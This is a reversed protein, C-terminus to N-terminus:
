RVPFYNSPKTSTVPAHCTPCTYFRTGTNMRRMRIPGILWERCSCYVKYKTQTHNRRLGTRDVNHTRKPLIGCKRMLSKWEVGHPSCHGVKASLNYKYNAVLHCVEHIVTERREQESARPWLPASFRVRNLRYNADGVKRTFRANWEVKIRSYFEPVLLIDCAWKITEVIKRSETTYDM